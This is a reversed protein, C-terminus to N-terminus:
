EKWKSLDIHRLQSCPLLNETTVLRFADKPAFQFRDCNDCLVRSMSAKKIEALQEPTFVGPNKYFFRDGDRLRKFQDGIICSLTSGIMGNVVPDEVMAGTYLDINDPHKYERALNERSRADLIQLSLQDFTQAVNLGCFQRWKNYGPLGHDRGRQINLSALDTSGFMRETAAPTIRQPRKVPTTMLGRLIPDIGGEFL